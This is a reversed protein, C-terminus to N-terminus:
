IASVFDVVPSKALPTLVVSVAVIWSTAPLVTVLPASAVLDMVKECVAPDPETVLGPDTAATPPTAVFVTVPLAGPEIERRALAVREAGAPAVFELVSVKLMVGAGVILAGVKALGQLGLWLLEPGHVIVPVLKTLPKVTVPLPLTCVILLTVTTLEVCIVSVTVPLPPFPALPLKVIVL